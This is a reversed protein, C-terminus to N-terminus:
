NYVTQCRLARGDFWAWKEYKNISLNSALHGVAPAGVVVPRRERVWVGGGAVIVEDVILGGRLQGM